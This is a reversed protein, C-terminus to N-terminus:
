SNCVDRPNGPDRCWQEETLYNQAQVTMSMAMPPSNAGVKVGALLFAAESVFAANPKPLGSAERRSDFWTKVAPHALVAKRVAEINSYKDLVDSPVGDFNAPEYAFMTLVQAIMFDAVSIRKGVACGASGHKAIFADINALSAAVKGGASVAELRAAEREDKELGRGVGMIAVLIDDCADMVEDVHSAAVIDEPYLGALRGILRLAARQQGIETGDALRLVPLSSWPTSPKLAGWDAIFSVKQNTYEVNAVALAMRIAEGRGAPPFYSLTCNALLARRRYDM